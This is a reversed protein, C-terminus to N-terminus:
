GKYIQRNIEMTYVDNLINKLNPLTHGITDSILYTGKPFYVIHSPQLDEPFIVNILGNKKCIEFSIRYNPDDSSELEERADSIGKINPSLIDNMVQILKKTCDEKGTNDCYYPAKTVDLIVDCNEPYIM